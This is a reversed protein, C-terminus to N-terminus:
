DTELPDKGILNIFVVGHKDSFVDKLGKDFLNM